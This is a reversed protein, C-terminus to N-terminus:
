DQRIDSLMDRASIHPNHYRTRTEPLGLHRVVVRDTLSGTQGLIRYAEPTKFQIAKVPCYVVCANCGICRHNWVPHGDSMTIDRCPCIRQCLGCGVCRDSVYFGKDYEHGIRKFPMMKRDYLRRILFSCRPYPRRKGAAIEKGIREANRDSRPVMCRPDPFPEYAICHSGVCWLAKGYHLQLGKEQLIAAMTEFSRGKILVYTAVMFVYAQARISLREVFRQMPEPMDWEYVPCVFGVVDAEEALGSEKDARVSVVTAGGIQGAIVEAARLSNGTGSFCYIVQKM